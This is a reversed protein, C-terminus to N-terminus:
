VLMSRPDSIEKSFLINILIVLAILQRDVLFQVLLEVVLEARYVTIPKNLQKYVVLKRVLLWPTGSDGRPDCPPDHAELWTRHTKFLM